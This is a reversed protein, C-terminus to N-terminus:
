AVLNRLPAYWQGSLQAGARREAPLGEGLGGRGVKKSRPGMGGWAKVAGLAACVGLGVGGGSAAGWRRRLRSKIRSNQMVM